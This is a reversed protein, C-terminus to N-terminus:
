LAFGLSVHFQFKPDEVNIQRAVDIRIPGAITYYRIGIGAGQALIMNDWNNFANGVDYFAAVAWNKTIAYELELSGVLLNKGGTVNGNADKPGLSQYTYGRVSRDGGAYFRLTPPLVTVPDKEWTTGVQFRPILSLRPTLPYLIDGNALLQLFNTEAGLTDTSGRLELYYRFGKTPRIIDDVRRHTFRLGPMVLSSKGEQGSESYNEKRFQVYASGVIGHGFSRAQEAELTFLLSDYADLLEQQLGTKLLTRNDIHGRNPFSYIASLDQRRESISLDTSFDHGRQFANLDKYRLSVRAGTDTAYGVGPRFRKPPSPELKIKVPVFYNQAEETNTEITASAFRDSNILNLQTQYTKTFSYLEGPVFDLFRELYAKPYMPAGEFTVEGYRFQEGTELTLAIESRLDGRYVRVVHTTFKAGLYGLDLAKYRLADRGKEYKGQHLTDGVKLPFAAVSDKLIKEKEGLGKLQIDISSVRVPEGRVVQAKLVENNEQTKELTVTARAHYYGLPELAQIVKEPARRLFIDLLPRNLVGEQILGPPLTLAAQVNKLEEGELGTVIVSLPEAALAPSLNGFFSFGWVTGFCIVNIFFRIGRTFFRGRFPDNRRRRFRSSLSSYHNYKSPGQWPLCFIKKL